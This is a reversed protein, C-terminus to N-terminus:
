ADVAFSQTAPVNLRLVSPRCIRLMPDRQGCLTKNAAASSSKSVCPAVASAATVSLYLAYTFRTTASSKASAYAMFCITSPLVAAFIRPILGPGARLPTSSRTMSQCSSWGCPVRSSHSANM